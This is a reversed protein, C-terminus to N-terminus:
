RATPETSSLANLAPPEVPGNAAINVPLTACFRDCADPSVAVPECCVVKPAIVCNMFTIISGNTSLRPAGTDV